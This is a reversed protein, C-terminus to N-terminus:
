TRLNMTQQDTHQHRFPPGKPWTQSRTGFLQNVPQIATSLQELLLSDGATNAVRGGHEEIKQDILQQRHARLARLTGEEDRGILRSYGAIPLAFATYVMVGGSKDEWFRSIWSIGHVDRQRM